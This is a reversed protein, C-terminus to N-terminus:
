WPLKIDDFLKGSSFDKPEEPYEMNAGSEYVEPPGEEEPINLVHLKDKKTKREKIVVLNEKPANLYQVFEWKGSSEIEEILMILLQQFSRFDIENLHATEPILEYLEKFTVIKKM